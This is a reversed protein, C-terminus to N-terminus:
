REFVPSARIVSSPSMQSVYGRTLLSRHNGSGSQARLFGFLTGFCSQSSFRRGRLHFVQRDHAHLSSRETEDDTEHREKRLHLERSRLRFITRIDEPDGGLVHARDETTVPVLVRRRRMEISERLLADTVRLGERRCRDARRRPRTEDVAHVRRRLPRVVHARRRLNGILKAAKRAEKTFRAVVCRVVDLGVVVARAPFFDDRGRPVLAARRRVEALTRLPAREEADEVQHGRVLAPRHDPRALAEHLLHLTPKRFVLYVVGRLRRKRRVVGVRGDNTAGYRAEVVADRRHVLLDARDESLELLVTERVVRDDEEVRIVSRSHWTVLTGQEVRAHADRQHDSKRRLELVERRARGPGHAISEHAEDVERRSNEFERSEVDRLEHLPLDEEALISRWGALVDEAMSIADVLHDVERSRCPIPAIEVNSVVHRVEAVVLRRRPRIEALNTVLEVSRRSVSRHGRRLTMEGSRRPCDFLQVVAPFVRLVEDIERLGLLVALDQLAKTERVRLVDPLSAIETKQGLGIRVVCSPLSRKPPESTRSPSEVEIRQHSRSLADSHCTFRREERMESVRIPGHAVPAGDAQRRRRFIVSLSKPSPESRTRSRGREAHDLSAPGEPERAHARARRDGPPGKRRAFPRAARRVHPSNADPSAGRRHACADCGDLPSM